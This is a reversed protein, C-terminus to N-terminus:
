GPRPEEVVQAALDAALPAYASGLEQKVHQGLARAFDARIAPWRLPLLLSILIHLVILVALVSLLPVLILELWSFNAPPPDGHLVTPGSFRWRELGLA